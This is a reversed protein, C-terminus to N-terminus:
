SDGLVLTLVIPVTNYIDKEEDVKLPCRTETAWRRWGWCGDLHLM